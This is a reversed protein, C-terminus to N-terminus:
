RTLSWSFSTKQTYNIPTFCYFFNENKSIHRVIQAVPNSPRRVMKKMKSLYHEFKFVSINDLVGFRRADEAVRLLSHVNYSLYDKGYIIVFNQIFTKFLNEAHNLLQESACHQPSLLITTAVSLLLFNRYSKDSLKGKLIIPGTYLLFQRLETAKWRSFDEIFRPKRSFDKPM